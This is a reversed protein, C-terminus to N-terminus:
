EGGRGEGPKRTKRRYVQQPYRQHEQRAKVATARLKEKTSIIWTFCNSHKMNINLTHHTRNYQQIHQYIYESLIKIIKEGGRAGGVHWLCRMYSQQPQLSRKMSQTCPRPHHAEWMDRPLLSVYPPPPPPM